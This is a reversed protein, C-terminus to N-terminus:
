SNTFVCAVDYGVALHATDPDLREEFFSIEFKGDQNAANFYDIDNQKTDFFAIKIKRDRIKNMLM